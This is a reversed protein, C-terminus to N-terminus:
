ASGPRRGVVFLPLSRNPSYDYPQENLLSVRGMDESIEHEVVGVFYYQNSGPTANPTYSFPLAGSGSM